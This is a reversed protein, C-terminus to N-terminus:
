VSGREQENYVRPLASFPVISTMQSNTKGSSKGAVKDSEVMGVGISTNTTNTVGTFLQLSDM